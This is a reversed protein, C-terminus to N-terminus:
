KVFDRIFDQLFTNTSPDIRNPKAYFGRDIKLSLFRMKRTNTMEKKLCSNEFRFNNSKKCVIGTVYYDIVQICPENPRVCKTHFENQNISKRNIKLTAYM